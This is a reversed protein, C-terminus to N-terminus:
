KRPGKNYADYDFANKYLPEAIWSEMWLERKM